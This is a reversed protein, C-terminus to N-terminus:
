LNFKKAKNHITKLSLGLIKAAKTKNGGTMELTRRILEREVDAASTGLPVTFATSSGDRDLGAAGAGPGASVAGGAASLQGTSGAGDGPPLLGRSGDRIVEGTPSYGSGTFSVRGSATVVVPDPVCATFPVTSWASAMM